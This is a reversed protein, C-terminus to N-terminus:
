AGGMMKKWARLQGRQTVEDSAKGVIVGNEDRYQRELGRGLFLWPNVNASLGLQNREFIEADDPSGSSSPGYFSEHQRLRWENIGDPAGKLLMPFMLVETEDVAIPRIIRIQINILQLNPYIGAHPDGAWALLVRAKEEGYAAYMSAVYEEGGPKAKLTKLYNDLERYRGPFYDLLVHGNGLDLTNGAEDSLPDNKPMTEALGAHKRQWQLLIANHTYYPHYGDMGIYKWNGKYKTRQVGARVDIEGLPSAGVTIDLYKKAQGLHLELSPGDASLSAFVFGQYSDCRPAPTLAFDAKNFSSGYADAGPVDRCAGTTDFVWGHYWCTFNKANGQEEVCVSMGRHRCRNMLVRVKRDSGRVFIASQRGISTVRYDGPNPLESEHGIFMWTKHFIREMELEFVEKSTYIDSHIWPEQVLDAPTLPHTPQLPANM